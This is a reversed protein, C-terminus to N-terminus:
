FTAGVPRKPPPRGPPGGGRRVAGPQSGGSLVSAAVLAAAAAGVAAAAWWRSHAIQRRGAQRPMATGDQAARGQASGDLAPSTLEAPSALFAVRAAIRDGAEDAPWDMITLASLEAVLAEDAPLSAPAAQRITGAGRQRLVDDILRDVYMLRGQVHLGDQDHTRDQENM